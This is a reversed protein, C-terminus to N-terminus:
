IPATYMYRTAKTKTGRATAQLVGDTELMRLRKWASTQDIGVLEGAKRCSLFFVGEGAARQLERCLKILRHTRPCDYRGAMEPLESANANALVQTMPESGKPFKVCPWGYVFDAWTPDFPQTGIM